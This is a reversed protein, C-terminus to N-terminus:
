NSPSGDHIGEVYDNRKARLWENMLWEAQHMLVRQMRGVKEYRPGPLARVDTLLSEYAQEFLETAVDQRTMAQLERLRGEFQEADM